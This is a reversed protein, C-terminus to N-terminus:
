WCIWSMKLTRCEYDVELRWQSTICGAYGFGSIENLCEIDKIKLGSGYYNEIKTYGPKIIKGGRTYSGDKVLIYNLSGTIIDKSDNCSASSTQSM